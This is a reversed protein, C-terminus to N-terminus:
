QVRGKTALMITLKLLEEMKKGISLFQEGSESKGQAKRYHALTYFGEIVLRINETLQAVTDGESLNGGKTEYPLRTM